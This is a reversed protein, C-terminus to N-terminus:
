LIFDFFSFEEFFYIMRREKSPIFSCRFRANPIIDPNSRVSTSPYGAASVKFLNSLLLGPQPELSRRM